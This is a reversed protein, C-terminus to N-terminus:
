IMTEDIINIKSAMLSLIHCIKTLCDNLQRENKSRSMPKWYASGDVANCDKNRKDIINTLIKLNYDINLHDKKQQEMRKNLEQQEIETIQQKLKAIQEM